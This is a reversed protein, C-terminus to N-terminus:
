MAEEAECALCRPCDPCYGRPECHEACVDNHSPEDIGDWCNGGPVHTPAAAGERTNV